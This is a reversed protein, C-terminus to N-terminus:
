IYGYRRRDAGRRAPMIRVAAGRDQHAPFNDNGVDLEQLLETLEPAKTRFQFGGDQYHKYEGQYWHQGEGKSAYVADRHVIIAYQRLKPLTEVTKRLMYLILPKHNQTGECRVTNVHLASTWDVVLDTVDTCCRLSRLVQKFYAGAIVSRQGDEGLSYGWQDNLQLGFSIFLRRARLGRLEALADSHCDMRGTSLFNTTLYLHHPANRRRLTDMFERQVQQSVVSLSPRGKLRTVVTHSVNRPEQLQRITFSSCSDSAAKKPKALVVLDYVKDRLERPLDLFRFIGKREFPPLMDQRDLLIDMPRRLLHGLPQKSTVTTKVSLTDAPIAADQELTHHSVALLPIIDSSPANTQNVTVPALAHEKGAAPETILEECGDASSGLPAAPPMTSGICGKAKKRRVVTTWGFETM